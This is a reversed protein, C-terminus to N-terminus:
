SSSAAPRLRGLLRRGSEVLFSVDSLRPLWTSGLDVKAVSRYAIVLLLSRSLFGVTMACAVAAIGIKPYLLSVTTLNAILGLWVAWSCLGPRNVGRFYTM